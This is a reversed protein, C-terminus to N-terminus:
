WNVEINSEFLKIQIDIEKKNNISDSVGIMKICLRVRNYKILQTRDISCSKVKKLVVDIKWTVYYNKEIM